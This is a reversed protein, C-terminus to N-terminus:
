ELFKDPNIDSYIYMLCAKILILILIWTKVQNRRTPTSRLKNASISKVHKM